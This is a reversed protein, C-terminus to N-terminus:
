RTVVNCIGKEDPDGVADLRVVMSPPTFGTEDPAFHLVTEEGEVLGYFFVRDDLASTDGFRRKFEAFEEVQKPFLLRDLGGRRVWKDDDALAKEEEEPVETLAPKSESRGALAKDKM